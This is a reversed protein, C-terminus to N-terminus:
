FVLLILEGFKFERKLDHRRKEADILQNAWSDAAGVEPEVVLFELDRKQDSMPFVNQGAYTYPTLGRYFPPRKKYLYAWTTPYLYPNTVANLSFQNNGALEYTKEVLAMEDKLLMGKQVKFLSQQHTFITYLNGSLIVLLLVLALLKSKLSLIYIANITLLIVAFGIGVGIFIHMTNSLLFVLFHGALIFFAFGIPGRFKKVGWINILIILAALILAVEPYPPFLNNVFLGRLSELYHNLRPILDFGTSNERTFFALLGLIGQFKFKIEAMLFSSLLFVLVLFSKLRGKKPFGSLFFYVFTLPALYLMFFQFQICLGLGLATLVLNKQKLGLLWLSIAPIVLAPNSLWRAYSVMEFSAIYLLLAVTAVWKKSYTKQVLIFFPIAALLNTIIIGFLAMRPDGRGLGYFISLFYYYLPGHFLSGIDTPPGTVKLNGLLIEQAAFADRAQDYMFLM